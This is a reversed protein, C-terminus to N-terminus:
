QVKKDQLGLVGILTRVLWKPMGDMPFSRNHMIWSMARQCASLRSRVQRLDDALARCSGRLSSADKEAAELAMSLRDVELRRRKCEDDSALLREVLTTLNPEPRCGGYPSCMGPHQCRQM